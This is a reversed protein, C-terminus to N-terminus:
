VQWIILQLLMFISLAYWSGYIGVELGKTVVYFGKGYYPSLLQPRVQNLVPTADAAIKAGAEGSARHHCKCRCGSSPLASKSLSSESPIFSSADPDDLGVLAWARAADKATPFL